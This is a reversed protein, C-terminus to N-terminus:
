LDTRITHGYVSDDDDESKLGSEIGAKYSESKEVQAVVLDDEDEEEDEIIEAVEEVIEEADELDDTEDFIDQQTRSMLKDEIEKQKEWQERLERDEKIRLDAVYKPEDLLIDAKMFLGCYAMVAYSVIAVYFAIGVTKDAINIGFDNHFYISAILFVGYLSFLGSWREFSSRKIPLSPEAIYHMAYIIAGLTVLNIILMTIGIISAPGTVASYTVGINFTDIDSYWPFFLAVTSVLIGLILGKYRLNLSLFSSLLDRLM